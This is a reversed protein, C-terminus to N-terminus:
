PLGGAREVSVEVGMSGWRHPEGVVDYREGRIEFSDLPSPEITGNLLYLTKGVLLAPEDPRGTNESSSRAAVLAQLEVGDAETPTTNGLDDTTTTTSYWTVTEGRM